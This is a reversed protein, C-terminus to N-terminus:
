EVGHEANYADAKKNHERVHNNIFETIGICEGPTAPRTNYDDEETTFGEEGEKKRVTAHVIGVSEHMKQMVFPKRFLETLEFWVLNSIKKKRELAKYVNPLFSSSNIPPPIHGQEIKSLESPCIGIERAFKRLGMHAYKLRFEKLKKGFFMNEEIEDM